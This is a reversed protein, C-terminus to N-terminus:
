DEADSSVNSVKRIPLKDSFDGYQGNKVAEGDEDWSDTLMKDHRVCPLVVKGQALLVVSCQCIYRVFM